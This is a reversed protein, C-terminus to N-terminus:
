YRIKIERYIKEYELQMRRMGFKQKAFHYAQEGLAKGDVKPLTEMFINIFQAVNNNNVVLPWDLPLTENLGACNNIITPIHALSAEVCMLGFGEFNSPMFLYDFSSLYQSLGYIKDYISVNKQNELNEHVKDSMSGSGVVHFYFREDGQMARVVEILEDVGKQYELRGAFLINIKGKIIGDFSLKSCEDLGNYIIPINTEGYMEMYCEKTSVSIAVNSRHKVYYPEVWFGIKGWENWLQTNHITRVYQPKIWGFLWSFKRFIWLAFDPIETHSHIVDPRFRVYVINFWVWFLLIGLKKNGFPSFHLIIGDNKLEEVIRHSFESDSHVVEVIHYEFGASKSSAINFAVREAGGLDFSTVVHFVKMM